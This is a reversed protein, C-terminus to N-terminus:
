WWYEFQIGFNDGHTQTLYYSSGIQGLTNDSWDSYTYFLRIVPRKWIGKDLAAELAATTKTLTYIKSSADDKVRDLGTELVFRGNKHFFWYPRIGASIWIQDTGSFAIEKRKEYVLNSMLGWQDNEFANYNIFRWTEAMEIAKSTGLVTDIFAEQRYPSTSGAGKAVGEAYFLASINEGEMSFLEKTLKTDKYLLGVAYAPSVNIHQATNFTKSHIQMRNAFLTLEGRETPKNLRLDHSDFLVQEDGAISSPDLRDFIYSYSLKYGNLDLNRFGAGDGSMNLYFYDYIHSDYRDYFRRGVWISLTNDFIGSIESYLEDLRLYEINHNNVGYFVPRIQNHLIVGNDFHITDYLGLEIWTECENGLRYKSGAGPAKFCVNAKKDQLSTQLRMYGTTGVSNEVALATFSTLFILVITISRM